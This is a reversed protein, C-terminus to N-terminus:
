EARNRIKAVENDIILLNKGEFGALRIIDLISRFLQEEEHQEAVFWQLFNNTAYDKDGLALEVLKNISQSVDKEQELSLEFVEKISEYKCLPEKISSIHAHSGSENIYKVLKLMHEREENSQAYFFEACGRLGQGDCWSAMSLYSNSAFAEKAMQDNLTAAITKTLM